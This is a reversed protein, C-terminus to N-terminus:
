AHHRLGGSQRGRPEGARRCPGSRPIGDGHLGARLSRHRPRARRRRSRRLPVAHAGRLGRGGRRRGRARIRGARGRGTRGGVRDAGGEGARRGEAARVGLAGMRVGEMRPDGVVTKALRAGVADIVAEVHAAPAFIRRIATCKQGAKTTMERAVEKVFLDFEPTDPGADPGLISANLSDQEATFRVGERMLNENSRLKFATEASGTFTVADQAGLLDLANGLGGAVMQVAGDPLHGSEAMLRICAETVYATATAPKVISPVGALLSPALKELMGWVPFNFANVHIAAGRLPTYVHQGLFAGTRGLAEPGGDLLVRDDPLERRGKSAYVFMTGIGGDVDIQHDALTAGTHYSLDYLTQRNANLHLALAKLMKARDHFTMARLAAGGRERAYDLMGSLDLADNGARGFDAGTVADAIARAGAGPGVWEGKAYSAVDLM